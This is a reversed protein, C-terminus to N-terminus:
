GAVAVSYLKLFAPAICIICLVLFWKNPKTEHGEASIAYLFGFFVGVLGLLTIAMNQDM